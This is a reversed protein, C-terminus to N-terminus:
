PNCEEIHYFITFEDLSSSANTIFSVVSARDKPLAKLQIYDSMMFDLRSRRIMRKPEDSLVPVLTVYGPEDNPQPIHIVDIRKTKAIFPRHFETRSGNSNNLEYEYREEASEYTECAFWLLSKNSKKQRVVVFPRHVYSM